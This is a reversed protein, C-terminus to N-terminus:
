SIHGLWQCIHAQAEDVGTKKLGSFLQVTIPMNYSKVIKEVSFKVNNAQNRSLKDAKTLLIHIEVGTGEMWELLIEDDPKLPHRCDMLLILGKLCQRQQLYQALTEQWRAKIATNVKAYGYGPLDVLRCHEDLEFLNILQTRGPTKSTRALSKQDTICNLATSKGANSRGVFAVEVGQDLPLQKLQAASTLFKAQRLFMNAGYFFIQKMNPLILM